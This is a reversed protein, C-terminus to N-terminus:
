MAYSGAHRMVRPRTPVRLHIQLLFPGLWMQDIHSCDVRTALLPCGVMEPISVRTGSVEGPM